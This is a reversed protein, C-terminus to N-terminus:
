QIKREQHLVRGCEDKPVLQELRKIYDRYSDWWARFQHRWNRYRRIFNRYSADSQYFQLTEKIAHYDSVRFQYPEAFGYPEVFVVDDDSPDLSFILETDPYQQRMTFMVDMLFPIRQPHATMWDYFRYPDKLTVLEIRNM